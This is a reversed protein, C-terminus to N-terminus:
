FSQQDRQIMNVFHDLDDASGLVNLDCFFLQHFLKFKRFHLCLRDHIHTQTSQSSQFSLFQFCFIRFQHLLDVFQTRDKCVPFQKETHDLFFDQDNGVLVAIVASCTDAIILEINGHFIHNRFFINHDGHCLHSIDFPHRHIIELTLVTSALSDLSHLFQIFIVNLLQEHRRRM